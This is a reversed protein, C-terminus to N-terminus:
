VMLHQARHKLIYSMLCIPNNITIVNYITMQELSRYQSPAKKQHATFNKSIGLSHSILLLLYAVKRFYNLASNETLHLRLGNSQKKHVFNLGETKNVWKRSCMNEGIIPLDSSGLIPSGM